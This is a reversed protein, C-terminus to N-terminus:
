TPRNEVSALWTRELEAAHVIGKSLLIDSAESLVTTKGPGM